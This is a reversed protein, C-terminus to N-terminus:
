AEEEWAELLHAIGQLPIGVWDPRNNLEYGLEYVAKEMLFANLLVRMQGDTSPLYRGETSRAIYHKLFAAGAWRYWFAGWSEMLPTEQEHFLGRAKEKMLASHTAYHFSRLMGAVDRLPSRKSVARAPEGEFDIIVFDKGTYLVQGLHFDGHCRLRQGTMKTETLAKFVGLVAQRRSLLERAADRTDGSLRELATEAQSFVRGALSRMSQYLSRQYLKSFKEPAFAPDQPESGLLIHMRATREAMMQVADLYYGLRDRVTEPIDGAATIILPVIMPSILLGM